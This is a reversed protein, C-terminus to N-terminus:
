QIANQLEARGIPTSHLHRLSLRSSSSGDWQLSIFSVRSLNNIEVSSRETGHINHCLGECCSPTLCGNSSCLRSGTDALLSMLTGRDINATERQINKTANLSFLNSSLRFCSSSHMDFNWESGSATAAAQWSPLDAWINVARNPEWAIRGVQIM